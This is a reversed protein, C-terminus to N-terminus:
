TPLARLIRNPTVVSIPRIPTLPSGPKPQAQEALAALDLKAMRLATRVAETAYAIAQASEEDRARGALWGLKSAHAAARAANALMLWHPRTIGADDPRADHDLRNALERAGTGSSDEGGLWRAAWDKFEGEFAGEYADRACLVAFRAHHLGSVTPVAVQRLATVQKCELAGAGATQPDVTCEWIRPLRFGADAVNM